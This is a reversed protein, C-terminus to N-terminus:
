KNISPAPPLLQIYVSCSVGCEQDEIMINEYIIKTNFKESLHFIIFAFAINIQFMNGFM